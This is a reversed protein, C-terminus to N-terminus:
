LNAGLTREGFSNELNASLEKGRGRELGAAVADAPLTKRLESLIMEARRRTEDNCGPHNLVLGLLELALSHQGKEALLGAMGALAALALPLASIQLASAFGEDYRRKAVAHDGQELAVDAFTLMVNVM